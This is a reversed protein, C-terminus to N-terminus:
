EAAHIASSVGADLGQVDVVTGGADVAAKPPDPIRVALVNGNCMEDTTSEGWNVDKVPLREGNVIPQNDATNDFRCEVYLQDNPLLRVPTRFAYTEQWDFSWAPIDLLSEREGTVARVIEMKGSRGRTHMHLDAWYLDYTGSRALDWPRGQWKHVVDPQNAPVLMRRAPWSPSLVQSVKGVREVKADVMLEVRTQDPGTKRLTNYHMQLVLKSGPKIEFGVNGPNEEGYGGPEYSSLWVSSGPGSMCGYGPGPDAADRERLDEVDDPQVLYVIAHHVLAKDSPEISLGTIYRTEEEDWDLIFCNYDDPAVRPTYPEALRLTKDVRPLGRPRAPPHEPEDAPDGEPAGRAVWGLLTSKQAEDLRRDGVYRDLPGSARWPPMSGSQVSREIAAALPKVESYATLSFPGMGGQVHCQACKADLIPKVDRYYTPEQETRAATEHDDRPRSDTDSGTCSVLWLSTLILSRRM